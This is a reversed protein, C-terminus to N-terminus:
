LNITSTIGVANGFQDLVSLHATGGDTFGEFAPEYYSVNFTQDDDIKQRIHSSYDESTM